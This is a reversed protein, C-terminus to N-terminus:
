HQPKKDGPKSRVRTSAPWIQQPQKSSTSMAVEQQQQLLHELTDITCLLASRLICFVLQAHFQRFPSESNSFRARTNRPKGEHASSFYIMVTYPYITAM